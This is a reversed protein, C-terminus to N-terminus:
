RQSGALQFPQIREAGSLALGPWRRLTTQEAISDPSPLPQQPPPRTTGTRVISLRCCAHM